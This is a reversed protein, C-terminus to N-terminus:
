NRAISGHMSLQELLTRRFIFEDLAVAATGLLGARDGLSAKRVITSSSIRKSARENFTDIISQMYPEPLASIGGGILIEDPRLIAAAHIFANAMADCAKRILADIFPDFQARGCLQKVTIDQENTHASGQAALAWGAAITELCGIAGCRCLGTRAIPLHGFQCDNKVAKGDTVWTAGIHEGWNIYFLSHSDKISGFWREGTVMAKVNNEVIVPFQIHRSLAVNLPVHEWEWHPISLVTGTAPEITGNLSVAMGAIISPDKMRALIKNANRIITATLVEPAPKVETPYREYRLIDGAMNVLAVSTNRIGVDISIVAKADKLIALQTPPRGAGTQRRGTEEVMGEEVLKDVIESTSVKNLALDRAVDARSLGQHKAIINLVRLRNIARATAPQSFQM